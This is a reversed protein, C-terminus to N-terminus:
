ISGCFSSEVLERGQPLEIIVPALDLFKKDKILFRSVFRAQGNHVPENKHPGVHPSSLVICCDSNFWGILSRFGQVMGISATM